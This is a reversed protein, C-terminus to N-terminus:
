FFAREESWDPPGMWGEGTLQDETAGRCWFLIKTQAKLNGPIKRAANAAHFRVTAPKMVLSKAITAYDEGDSMREVVFSETLTFQKRLLARDGIM